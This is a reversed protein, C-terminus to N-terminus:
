DKKGMFRYLTARGVGLIKAAKVKNGGAQALAQDVKEPTLHTRGRKVQEALNPIASETVPFATVPFPPRSDRSGVDNWSTTNGFRLEHPLHEVKIAGSECRVSAYQLANILERVNGPWTHNVLLQMANDELGSINKSSEARIDDLVKQVLFPIDETRDRLPPLEIPVVCLRYFLDERFEGDAVMKRLNKNTASVIRVDTTIPKEGGVREFVQEQLVRLLKVQVQFPLEGVEDLFLTGGNALEFRGKKDRIAGTFAGRVHGFLESELINEPLAGCNVPVFPGDKRRSEAHVAGAVLEKGTGSEGTILVPYDSTGVSHITQFLERIASSVGIMGHFSQIRQLRQRLNAIETVDRIVALVGRTRDDIVVPRSRVNIRRSEGHGDVFAVTHDRHEEKRGGGIFACAAGCLGDPPFAEHCDLGIIDKKKRATIRETAQNVLYIKRREDHVVIGDDLLDLLPEVINDLIRLDNMAKGKMGFM